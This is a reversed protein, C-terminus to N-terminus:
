EKDVSMDARTDPSLSMCVNDPSLGHMCITSRASTAQQDEKDADRVCPGVHQRCFPSHPVARLATPILCRNRVDRTRM